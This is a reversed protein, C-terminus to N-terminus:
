FDKGGKFAAYGLDRDAIAQQQAAMINASDITGQAQAEGGYRSAQAMQNATQMGIGAEREGGQAIIGAQQAAAGQGGQSMRELPKMSAYYRSLFNDYDQTAFNQGFRMAEKVARGSLSSGRAASSADLARNGEELRAKYGPSQKYDGPGSDILKTLKGLADVGANKWPEHMSTAKQTARQTSSMASRNADTYAKEMGRTAAMRQQAAVQMQNAQQGAAERTAQENLERQSAGYREKDRSLMRRRHLESEARAADQKDEVTTYKNARMELFSNLWKDSRGSFRGGRDSYMSQFQTAM